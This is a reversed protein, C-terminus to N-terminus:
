DGDADVYDININFAQLMDVKIHVVNIQLQDYTALMKVNDTEVQEVFNDNLEQATNRVAQFQDNIVKALSENDKTVNLYEIYTKMSEGETANEYHVGNFFNQVADLARNFLLKSLDKRYFAEVNESLADGSFVGAPIGIKGARLHREYYFIYDNVLKDVSALASNSSNEVFDNRYSDNWDTLVAQSLDDIRNTLATLYNLYKAANEDNQYFDLVADQNEAIGFLLYDLAPFGQMAIQSPLELNYGGNLVNDTLGNIDTPYINLNNTIRLEEAKGIEFISVDQFATYALEWTTVLSEYNATTPDGTFAESATKLEGTKEIFFTYAPIIINDAWNILMAQRDFNDEPTTNQNGDDDCASVSVILLFLFLRKM